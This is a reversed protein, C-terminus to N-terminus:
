TGKRRVGEMERSVSGGVWRSNQVEGQHLVPTHLLPVPRLPLLDSVM